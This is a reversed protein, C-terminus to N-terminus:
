LGLDIDEDDSLSGDSDNLVKSSNNKKDKVENDSKDYVYSIAAKKETSGKKKGLDFNLSPNNEAGYLEDSKIQLLCQEESVSFLRFLCM